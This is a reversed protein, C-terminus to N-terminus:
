QKEVPMNRLTFEREAISEFRVASLLVYGTLYGEVAKVCVTSCSPSLPSCMMVPSM